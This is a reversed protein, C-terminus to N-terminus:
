QGIELVSEGAPFVKASRAGPPTIRVETTANLLWRGAQAPDAHLTVTSPLTLRDGPKTVLVDVKQGAQLDAGRSFTVNRANLEKVMSLIPKDTNNAGQGHDVVGRGRYPWNGAKGAVTHNWYLKAVGTEQDIEDINLSALVPSQERFTLVTQGPIETTSIEEVRYYDNHPYGFDGRISSDTFLTAGSINEPLQADVVIRSNGRAPEVSVVTASISPAETEIKWGATELSRGEQMAVDKLEGSKGLRIFANRGDFRPADAQTPVMPEVQPAAFLYDINGNQLTVRMAMSGEGQEQLPVQETSAIAWNGPTGVETINVFRSRLAGEAGHEDLTRRGVILEFNNEPRMTPSKATVATMGDYNLMNVRMAHKRDPLPWIARWDNDTDEAKVDWIMGYGNGPAPNWRTTPLRKEGPLAAVMGNEGNLREGWSQGPKNWEENRYREGGLSALTWVEPRSQPSIGEVAFGTGLAKEMGKDVYQSNWVYDHTRGGLVHFADVFYYNQPDIDVLWAARRYDRLKARTYLNTNQMEVLQAPGQEDPLFATINAAPAPINPSFGKFLHPAPLDENVVLSNHAVSRSGWGLNDPTNAWRYGFEGFLVMGNGYPVITMQDDHGHWSNIGGRLFLARANEGKGSRLVAIGKGAMLDSHEGSLTSPLKVGEAPAPLESWLSPGYILIDQLFLPSGKDEGIQDYLVELQRKWDERTTNRHFIRLYMARHKALWPNKSQLLVARDMSMDGYIPYRNLVPLRYLMSIAVNFWRPDDEPRVGETYEELDPMQAAIEAPYNAKSYHALPAMLQSGYDRGLRGYSGSVEMYDGDRNITNDFFGAMGHLGTRLLEPEGFLVGQTMMNALLSIAHNTLGRRNPELYDLEYVEFYNKAINEGVTLPAETTSAVSPESAFPSNGILDLSYATQIARQNAINGNFLFFGKPVTVTTKHPWDVVTNGITPLQVRLASLRDLMYLARRAFDPNGTLMYAIALNDIAGHMENVIWSNWIGKFYYVQGDSERVWGSGDDYYPEGKKANGYIDGTHPSRVTGPRDLSCVNDSRGYRPWAQNTKPDGATAFAFLAGPKPILEDIQADSMEAWKEAESLATSVLETNVGQQAQHRVEAIDDASYALGRLPVIPPYEGIKSKAPALPQLLAIGCVLLLSKLGRTYM